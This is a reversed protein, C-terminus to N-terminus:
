PTNEMVTILQLFHESRIPFHTTNCKTNANASDCSSFAGQASTTLQKVPVAGMLGNCIFMEDAYLLNEPKVRVELVSSGVKTMCNLIHQRQVGAVGSHNLDPTYWQKAVRWFVNAASAEVVMGDTDCVLVDDFVSSAESKIIVQELRNLHKLGALQAQMGLEVSSLGLSIGTQQWTVYHAPFAHRTVVVNVGQQEARCYGRGGPLASVVIKIVAKQGIERLSPVGDASTEALWQDLRMQLLAPDFGTLGLTQCSRVLREIHLSWLQIVRGDFLMTTFCGDGYQAARSNASIFQPNFIIDM